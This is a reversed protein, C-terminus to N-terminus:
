IRSFYMYNIEILNLFDDQKSNDKLLSLWKFFKYIDEVHSYESSLFIKSITVFSKSKIADVLLDNKEIGFITASSWIIM